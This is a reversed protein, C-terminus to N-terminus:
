DTVSIDDPTDFQGDPGASTVKIFKNARLLAARYEHGWPDKPVEATYPGAWCPPNMGGACARLAAEKSRWCSRPASAAALHKLNTLCAASTSFTDLRVREILRLVHTAAARGEMARVEMLRRELDQTAPSSAPRAESAAPAPAAPAPPPNAAALPAATAATAPRQPQSASAVQAEPKAPRAIRPHAPHKGTLRAFLVDAQDEFSKRVERMSAGDLEVSGVQRGSASDFLRVFGVFRAEAKELSGSIFYAAKMERAANLGCSTDCVRAPDIGNDNLYALTTEGTLVTFGSGALADGAATRILEELATRSAADVHAHTVDLPLVSLVRPDSTTATGDKPSTGSAAVPTRTITRIKARSLSWEAGDVLIVVTDAEERVIRGEMRQGNTLDIVDAHATGIPAILLACLFLLRWPASARRQFQPVSSLACM